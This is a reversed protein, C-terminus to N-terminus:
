LFLIFDIYFLICTELLLCANYYVYFVFLLLLLLLRRGFVCLYVFCSMNRISSMSDFHVSCRAM